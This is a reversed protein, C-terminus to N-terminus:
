LAKNISLRSENANVAFITFDVAPGSRVTDCLNSMEPLCFHKQRSDIDPGISKENVASLLNNVVDLHYTKGWNFLHFCIPNSKKTKSEPREVSMSPYHKVDELKRPIIYAPDNMLKWIESFLKCITM